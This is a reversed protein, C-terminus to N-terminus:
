LQQCISGPPGISLCVYLHKQTDWADGWLFLERSLESVEGEGQNSVSERVIDPSMDLGAPRGLYSHFIAAASDVDSVWITVGRGERNRTAKLAGVISSFYQGNAYSCLM